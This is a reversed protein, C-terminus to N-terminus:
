CLLLYFQFKFSSQKGKQAKVIQERTMSVKDSNSWLGYHFHRKPQDLMRDPSNDRDQGLVPTRPSSSGSSQHKEVPSDYVLIDSDATDTKSPSGNASNGNALETFSDSMRPANNANTKEADDQADNESSYGATAMIFRVQQSSYSVIRRVFSQLGSIIFRSM